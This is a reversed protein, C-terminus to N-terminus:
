QLQSAAHRAHNLFSVLMKEVSLESFGVYVLFVFSYFGDHWVRNTVDSVIFFKQNADNFVTPSFTYTKSTCFAQLKVLM